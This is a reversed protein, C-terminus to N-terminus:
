FALVSLFVAHLRTKPTLDRNRQAAGAPRALPAAFEPESGLV